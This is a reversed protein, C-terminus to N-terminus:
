TRDWVLKTIQCISRMVMLNHIQKLRELEAEQIIKQMPTHRASCNVGSQEIYQLSHIMIVNNTCQNITVNKHQVDAALSMMLM